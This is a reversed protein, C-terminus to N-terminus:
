ASFWTKRKGGERKRVGLIKGESLKSCVERFLSRTGGANIAVKGEQLSRYM